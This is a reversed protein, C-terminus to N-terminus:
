QALGAAELAEEKTRYERVEMVKGERMKAVWAYPQRIDASGGRARVSIWGPMVLSDGAEVYEDVVFQFEEFMSRWMRMMGRIAERGVYVGTDPEDARSYFVADVDYLADLMADDNGGRNFREIGRRMAEANEQSM